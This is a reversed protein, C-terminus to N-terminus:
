SDSEITAGRFLEFGLAAVVETYRGDTSLAERWGFDEITIGNVSYGTILPLVHNFNVKLFGVHDRIPEPDGPKDKRVSLEAVAQRHAIMEETTPYRANFRESPGDEKFKFPKSVYDEQKGLM